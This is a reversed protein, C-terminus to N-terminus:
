DLKTEKKLYVMLDLQFSGPSTPLIFLNDGYASSSLRTEFARSPIESVLSLSPCEEGTAAAYRKIIYRFDFGFVNWGVMIDPAQEVTDECFAAILDEESEFCQLRTETDPDEPMDLPACAHLNYIVRLFPKAAQSLQYSVGVQCIADSPREPDPFRGSPSVCEIDWSALTLQPPPREADGRTWSACDTPSTYSIWGCAPLDREHMLQLVGDVNANYIQVCGFQAALARRKDQVYEEFRRRQSRLDFCIRLMPTVGDGRYGYLIRRRAPTALEPKLVHRNIDRSIMETLHHLLSDLSGRECSVFLYPKYISKITVREGAEDRGSAFVSFFWADGDAQKLDASAWNVAYFSQSSM